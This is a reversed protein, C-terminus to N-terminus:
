LMYEFSGNKDSGFMGYAFEIGVGRCILLRMEHTLCLLSFCISFGISNKGDM